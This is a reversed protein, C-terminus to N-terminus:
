AITEGDAPMRVRDMAVGLQPLTDRYYERTELCHNIAELHVVVILADPAAQHVRAIDEATMVIPDGELFRAGGGNVVIVDPLHTAIAEAVEDYWITDGAVYVLPDDPAEVIFGSVPAMRRGIGGTGHQASIRTLRVAEFTSEREVPRVDHFDKDRLRDVDESQCFLPMDHDLLRMATEDFHDAHLHTIVLADASGVLEEWGEPLEVLPNPQQNPTNNVASRTRAPDLM